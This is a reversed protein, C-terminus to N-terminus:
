AAAAEYEALRGAEEATLPRPGGAGLERELRAAAAGDVAGVPGVRGGRRGAGQVSVTVEAGEALGEAAEPPLVLRANRVVATFAPVAPSQPRVAGM